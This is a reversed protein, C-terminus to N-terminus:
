PQGFARLTCYCAGHEVVQVNCGDNIAIKIIRNSIRHYYGLIKILNVMLSMDVRHITLIYKNNM